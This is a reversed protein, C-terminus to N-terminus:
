SKKLSSQSFKILNMNDKSLKIEKIWKYTEKIGDSLSYQYNWNLVKKILTNDSSRGNVGKPKDLLYIRKL